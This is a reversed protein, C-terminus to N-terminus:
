PRRRLPEGTKRDLVRGDFCVRVGSRKTGPIPRGKPTKPIGLHNARVRDSKARETAEEASKEAHCSSRGKHAPALNSLDDSGGKWRPTKHEADWEEGVKIKLGCIHCRGDNADFVRVRQARTLKPRDNQALRM